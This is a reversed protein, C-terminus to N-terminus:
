AAVAPQALVPEGHMAAWKDLLHGAAFRDPTVMVLRRGQAKASLPVHPTPLPVFLDGEALLPAWEPWGAFVDAVVLLHRGLQWVQGPEVAHEPEGITVDTLALMTGAPAAPQADRAAIEALLAELSGDDWGTGEFGIPDAQVERLLEALQDDDYTGLDSLRNDALLYARAEEESMDQRVAAIHTWGLERAAQWTHNGAIITGDPRALIARVQGFRTLSRKIQDVNGRRPNRPHPALEAIPVLLPELDPAVRM